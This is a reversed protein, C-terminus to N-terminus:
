EDGCERCTVGLNDESYQYIDEEAVTRGCVGCLYFNRSVGDASHDALYSNPTPSDTQLATQASLEGDASPEASLSETDASLASPLDRFKELTVLRVAGRGPKAFEIAVGAARASSALKRLQTGLASPTKPWSRDKRLEENVKPVLMALLATATVRLPNTEELLQELPTWVLSQELPITNASDKSARMAGRFTGPELGLVPEAREAWACATAMRPLGDGAVGHLVSAPAICGVVADLLVGFIGPLHTNLNQQVEEDTVFEALPPAYAIVCRDLLDAEDAVETLSTLIVPREVNFVREENDTYYKRVVMGGGTSLLCLADSLWDPVSSLNDFALAWRHTATIMLDWPSKPPSLLDPLRPDVCTQLVRATTSKARGHGGTLLLLPYPGRPNFAAVLWFLALDWGQDDLNVLARLDQIDGGATPHPLALMTAERRFRVPPTPAVRWGEPDVEVAEWGDNALDVYVKGDLHGIRTFIPLAPGAHLAQGELVNLVDNVVNSGPVKALAAFYLGSLMSKFRTSRLPWHETHNRIEFSVWPDDGYHWYSITLSTLLELLETAPSKQAPATM